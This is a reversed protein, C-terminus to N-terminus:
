STRRTNTNEFIFSGSLYGYRNPNARLPFFIGRVGHAVSDLILVFFAECWITSGSQMRGNISCHCQEIQVIQRHENLDDADATRPPVANACAAGVRQATADILEFHLGARL